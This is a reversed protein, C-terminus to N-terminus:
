DPYGDKKRFRFLKVYQEVWHQEAWFRQAFAHAQRSWQEYTAWEMSLAQQIAAEWGALNALPLDWGIKQEPLDRWPTQDSILVPTGTAFAEFIAHGFNEGQSPLVLFHAQHLLAQVEDHPLAERWDVRISKPLERILNQCIKLYSPDEIPGVITFIVPDTIQQFAEIAKLLGKVPHIRGVFIFHVVGKPKPWYDAVPAPINALRTIQLPKGVLRQIAEVEEVDTAHFHVQQYWGWIRALQLFIRKKWTKYALASARLMGRPALIVSIEPYDSQLWLLPRISFTLSFMSNLYVVQPAVERVLDTWNQKSLKQNELYMVRLHDARRIWTNLELGAFPQEDGLDRDGTLVWIEFHGALVKALNACSQVPGGAKYAPPFWDALMLLKILEKNM